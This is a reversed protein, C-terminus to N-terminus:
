KKDNGKGATGGSSPTFDIGGDHSDAPKNEAPAQKAAADKAADKASADKAPADPKKAPQAPPASKAIDRLAAECEKCLFKGTKKGTETLQPVAHQACLSQECNVCHTVAAHGCPKKRLLGTEVTCHDM